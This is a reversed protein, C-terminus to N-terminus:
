KGLLKFMNKKYEEVGPQDFPNVDLLLGSIACAYEFFYILSGINRENLEPISIRIVPLGGSKHAQETGLMAKENVESIRKGAIYNLEDFNAKDEPILLEKKPKEVWLITEFINRVGDQMLQGMSHLDTTLDAGAPFIGKGQKGESEGYLQKWWETFFHLSPIYNVLMEIVKGKKFLLYRIAAYSFAINNEISLDNKIAKSMERAGEILESVDFGAIAIPLLGVPTLVSFRGGIDDPIVFTEYGSNMALKKLSGRAKDTIAIIRRKAIDKGYKDEIHQKLIRFAIAPETTTGSKSIVVISYDKKDLIELLDNLYDESLNQGAYLILPHKRAKQSQICSFNHSLAEIVARAGLYSGGIGIVVVVESEDIFREASNKISIVEEAKINEPLNLWGLFDKGKCTKERLAYSCAEIKGQLSEFEEKSIHEFVNGKEFKIDM